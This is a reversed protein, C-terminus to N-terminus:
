RTSSSVRPRSCNRERLRWCPPPRSPAIANSTRRCTTPRISSTTTRFQAHERHREPERPAHDDADRDHQAGSRDRAARGAAHAAGRARHQRGTELEEPTHGPRATVEIGFQSGLMLSYQYVNVDQAIQKEYVLKQYLRSARGGGLIHAAIDADADGPKFIAPTLWSM